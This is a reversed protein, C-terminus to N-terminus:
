NNENLIEKLIENKGITDIGWAKFISNVEDKIVDKRIM